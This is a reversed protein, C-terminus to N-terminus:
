KCITTKSRDDRLTDVLAQYVKDRNEENKMDIFDITIIGGINRLRLQYVIEKVAELNIKVTTEELSTRGVYKGTNVDIVTLAETQEIVIYGGSKLWVKKDLARALEIEIGYHEFIPQGGQFLEIRDRLGPFFQSAFDQIRVYEEKSDVVIRDMDATFMDRVARLPLSLERHILAPASAAEGKKRITDWHQVLYDMDAKLEADTRGEAATRVIAGMGDLRIREVIEHLRMREDPNEIRRSIGIHGSWTLLVLYRGPLTIHSTIRAGKTGLPEKAVQVILHQGERILGEIPPIYEEQPFRAVHIDIEEALDEDGNEDSDFGLRPTVFDGAYLFGAKEMGIDVFAAQMGPLVRIVKGKFINGIINRDDGRELLFEALIGSELTAVRTEYPASNIVILKNGKQM